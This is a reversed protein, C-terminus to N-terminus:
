HNCRVTNMTGVGKKGAQDVRPKVRTVVGRCEYGTVSDSQVLLLLVLSRPLRQLHDPLPRDRLIVAGFHETVKNLM